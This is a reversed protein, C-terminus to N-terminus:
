GSTYENMGGLFNGTRSQGCYPYSASCSGSSSWGAGGGAFNTGSAGSGGSGQGGGGRFGTSGSTGAEGGAGWYDPNASSAGAGGGGGAVVLPTSAGDKWVFTGGGGGGGSNQSGATSRWHGQQGVAINLIQGAELQFLGWAVAGAGGYYLSQSDSNIFADGGRAGEAHILYLGTSPIRIRQIGGVVSKLMSAEFSDKHYSTLCQASTPGYRGYAGCNSFVAATNNNVREAPVEEITM